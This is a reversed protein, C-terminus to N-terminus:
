DISIFSCDKCEFWSAEQFSGDSNYGSAGDNVCNSSGCNPCPNLDDIFDQFQEKNELKILENFDLSM